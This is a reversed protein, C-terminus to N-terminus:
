GLAVPDMEVRVSGPAKRASRTAQAAKLATALEQGRVRPVRVLIREDEADGDPAAVPGLVEAAPPLKAAALLEAVAEPAGTLAAMRGAPPLHLSRRDELEREAHWRPQWRLLAQVPRLESPAVVVVRGGDGSGRVLSAANLWRRLAEEAARLDARSLLLWGDLLIAASYGGDAVPEAGPTAVVLAPQGTVRALVKGGGSTKVSVGPYVRGLEEATRRAGVVVARLTLAACHPCRWGTAIVGCWRCVPPAQEGGRALPGACKRCQATHRCKACALAPVYGQRPVQILVPGSQLADKATRWAITPLRAARAAEDDALEEDGGSARVAPLDRTRAPATPGLESAWGTALLQAGEATVAHGALLMSAGARHARLVAVDRAHCYPARPEALLDDGDDWIVVLGLDHVPAWVASRTGVVARVAGRSLALFRSYRQEPGLEATLAVHHGAGLTAALARDVRDVDRADPVVIVVGRGAALVAAATAAIETPWDGPLATWVRRATGIALERLLEPGGAYRGLAAPPPVAVPDDAPKSKTREATAHRPPVALRTLDALSGAWRDAVERAVSAVEPLLVPESGLVREIFSLKGDHETDAARELIFGGVLAGAFRVRVRVGPQAAADQEQSVLYDFTRDLHPLSVEVCVRAIPLIEARRQIAPKASKKPAARGAATTM